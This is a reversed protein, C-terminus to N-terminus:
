LQQYGIVISIKSQAQAFRKRATPVANNQRRVAHFSQFHKLALVNVQRQQIDM